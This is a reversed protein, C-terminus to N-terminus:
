FRVRLGLRVAGPARNIKGPRAPAQREFLADAGAATLEITSAREVLTAAQAALTHSSAPQTAASNGPLTALCATLTMALLVDM